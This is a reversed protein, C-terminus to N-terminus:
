MLMVTLTALLVVAGVLIIGYAILLGTMKWLTSLVSQGYVHYMAFFLYAFPSVGLWWSLSMSAGVDWSGLGASVAFAIFALAHVHLAFILHELYLRKRRLYLGKLLLAFTPVLLFMLYPGRDIMDRVFERPSSLIHLLKPQVPTSAEQGLKADASERLAPAALVNVLGESASLATETPGLAAGLSELEKELEELAKQRNTPTTASADPGDGSSAETQVAAAQLSDILSRTAEVEQQVEATTPGFSISLADLNTFALVTFLLFSSFLYLRLPRIYRRRRGHVYEVTLRGPRFFFTPLTRVIRLDLDFLDELFENSVQWLPVVRNSARQGCVSCYTGTLVSDCNACERDQEDPRHSSEPSATNPASSQEAQSASM